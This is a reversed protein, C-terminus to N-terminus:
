LIGAATLSNNIISIARKKDQSIEVIETNTEKVYGLNKLILLLVPLEEFNVLFEKVIQYLEENKEEGILKSVLYLVRAAINKQELSIGSNIWLNKNADAGVLKWGHKGKILSFNGITFDEIHGRHKSSQSRGNQVSAYILGFERSFLTVVKSGEGRERGKIIIGETRHKHYM